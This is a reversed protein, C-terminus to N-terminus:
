VVGDEVIDTLKLHRLRARMVSHSVDFIDSLADVSPKILRGLVELLTTKPILLEGAFVNAQYECEDVVQANEDLNYDIKFEINQEVLHLCAHAIEHAVTFRQRRRLIKEKEADSMNKFYEAEPLRGQVYVTLTNNVNNDIICGLISGKRMNCEDEIGTFDKPELKIGIDRAISFINTVTSDNNRRNKLIDNSSLGSLNNLIESM